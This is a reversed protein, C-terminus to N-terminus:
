NKIIKNTYSTNGDTINVLYVGSSVNSLSIKASTTNSKSNAVMKGLIDYVSVSIGANAEPANINLINTTADLYVNMSSKEFKKNLLTPTAPGALISSASLTVIAQGANTKATIDPVGGVVGVASSEFDYAAILGPTTPANTADITASLDTIVEATTLSHDWIRIDDFSASITSGGTSTAGFVIDFTNIINIPGPKPNGTNSTYNIFIGDFYVKGKSLPNAVNDSNDNYIVAVHHWNGDNLTGFVVQNNSTNGYNTFPSNSTYDLLRIDTHPVTASSGFTLGLGGTTSPSDGKTFIKSFNSNNATGIPVKIRFTFSRSNTTTVDFSTHNPIVFRGGSTPANSINFFHNQAQIISASFLLLLLLNKKM